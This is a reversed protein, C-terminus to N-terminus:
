SLIETETRYKCYKEMKIRVLANQNKSLRTARALSGNVSSIMRRSSATPLKNTPNNNPLTFIGKYLIAWMNNNGASSALVWITQCSRKGRTNAENAQPLKSASAPVNNCTNNRLGIASWNLMVPLRMCQLQLQTRVSSENQCSSGRDIVKSPLPAIQQSCRM